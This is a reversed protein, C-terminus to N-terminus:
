KKSEGKSKIKGVILGVLSGIIFGLLPYFIILFVNIKMIVWLPFMLLFRIFILSICYFSGKSYDVSGCNINATMILFPIVLVIVVGIGWLGGKLWTKM